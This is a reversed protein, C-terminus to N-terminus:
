ENERRSLCELVGNGLASGVMFGDYDEDDFGNGIGEGNGEFYYGGYGVGTIKGARTSGHDFATFIPTVVVMQWQKM